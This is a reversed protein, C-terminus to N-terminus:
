VSDKNRSRGRPVIQVVEWESVGLTLAVEKISMRQALYALANTIETSAM